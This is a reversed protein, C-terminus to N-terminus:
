GRPGGRQINRPMPGKPIPLTMSGLAKLRRNVESVQDNKLNRPLKMLHKNLKRLPVQGEDNGAQIDYIPVDPVFRAVMKKEQALLNGLRSPGGGEAILVVGPRGVARHVLDQNRTVAVGPTVTWGKRLMNLAAAAAGPQGEVQSFAAKEARRGFVITAALFAFMVGMIGVYIPHKLALGIAVAVALVGLFVALTVWGVRPDSKRTMSYAQRIQGTRSPKKPKDPSEPKKSRAM